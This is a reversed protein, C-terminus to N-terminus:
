QLLYNRWILLILSQLLLDLLAAQLVFSLFLKTWLGLTKLQLVSGFWAVRPTSRNRNASLYKSSHSPILSTVHSVNPCGRIVVNSFRKGDQYVRALMQHQSGALKWYAIFWYMGVAMIRSEGCTIDPAFRIGISLYHNRGISIMECVHPSFHSGQQPTNSSYCCPSKLLLAVGSIISFKHTLQCLYEHLKLWTLYYSRIWPILNAQSDLNEFLSEANEVHITVISM